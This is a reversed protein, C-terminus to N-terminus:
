ETEGEIIGGVPPGALLAAHSFALSALAAAFQATTMNAIRQATAGRGDRSLRRVLDTQMRYLAGESDAARRM